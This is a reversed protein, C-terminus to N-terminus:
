CVADESQAQVHMRAYGNVTYPEYLIFGLGRHGGGGLFGLSDM